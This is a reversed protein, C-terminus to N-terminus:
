KKTLTSLVESIFQVGKMNGSGRLVDRHLKLCEVFVKVDSDDPNLSKFVEISRKIFEVDVREGTHQASVYAMEIAAKIALYTMLTSVERLIGLFATRNKKVEEQLRKIKEVNEKDFARIHEDLVRALERKARDLKQGINEM